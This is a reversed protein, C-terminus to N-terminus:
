LAPPFVAAIVRDLSRGGKRYLDPLDFRASDTWAQGAFMDIALVPSAAPKSNKAARLFWYRAQALEWPHEVDRHTTADEAVQPMARFLDDRVFIDDDDAGVGGTVTWRPQNLATRTLFAAVLRPGISTHTTAPTTNPSPLNLVQELQAVVYSRRNTTLLVDLWNFRGSGEWNTNVPTLHMEKGLTMYLCPGKHFGALRWVTLAPGYTHPSTDILRLQHPHRRVLEAGVTWALALRM